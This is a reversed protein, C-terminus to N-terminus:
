PNEQRCQKRRRRADGSRPDARGGGDGVSTYQGNYQM